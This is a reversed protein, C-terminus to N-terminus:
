HLLIRLEARTMPVGNASRVVDHDDIEEILAQLVVDSTCGCSFAAAMLDKRSVRSGDARCYMGGSTQILALSEYAPYYFPDLRIAELMVQQQSMRQGDPLVVVEDGFMSRGLKYYVTPSGANRAVHYLLTERDDM